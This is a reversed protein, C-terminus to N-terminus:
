KQKSAAKQLKNRFFAWHWFGRGPIADSTVSIVELGADQLATDIEAVTWNVSPEYVKLDADSTGGRLEAFQCLATGEPTLKESLGILYDLVLGKTLHQFVTISYVFDLYPPTLTRWDEALVPTFNYVNNSALFSQAKDLITHNVDIGYVHKVQPAIALTERGYGCGIIAATMSRDLTVFRAIHECDKESTNRPKKPDTTGYFKRYKEEGFDKLLAQNQNEFYGKNQMEKWYELNSRLTAVKLTDSSGPRNKKSNSTAPEEVLNGITVQGALRHQIKDWIDLGAFYDRGYQDFWGLIQKERWEEPLDFVTRDFFPYGYFWIRPSPKLGLGTEDISPAYRQNIEDISKNPERIRELCRYWSQKILLNRWNVFQFHLLGASYGELKFSRGSLGEPVRPTHIFESAYSCHRDDCFIIEKYNWTWVSNDFRYEDIDKWLQIWNLALRDGPQLKRITETLCANDLLNSSLMEDADIVIFHTGGIERGAQLMLNRDGPEDRLWENKRIIKEINCESRLSEVIQLSEDTSADDLYVIADTFMALARLCQSIIHKENRAPILGVIKHVKNKTVPELDPKEYEQPINCEGVGFFASVVQITPSLPASVNRELCPNERPLFSDWGPMEARPLLDTERSKQYCFGCWTRDHILSRLTIKSETPINVGIPLFHFRDGHYSWHDWTSFTQRYGIADIEVEVIGSLPGVVIQLGALYGQGILILEGGPECIQWVQQSKFVHHPEGMPYQTKTKLFRTSYKPFPFDIDRNGCQQLLSSFRNGAISAILESGHPTTHVSDKIITDLTFEESCLGKFLTSCINISPIGYHEAVTEYESLWPNAADFLHDARFLNLFIPICEVEKAVRIIAELSPGIEELPTLGDNLDGTLLEIFCITPQFSFFESVVKQLAALCGMAGYACVVQQHQHGTLKQLLRHLPTVYSDKQATVSAGLYGIRSPMSQLQRATRLPLGLRPIFETICEQSKLLQTQREFLGKTVPNSFIRGTINNFAKPQGISLLSSLQSRTDCLIATNYQNQITETSRILGSQSGEIRITKGTIGSPIRSYRLSDDTYHCSWNDRFAVAKYKVEGALANQYRSESSTERKHIEQLELVQGPKLGIVINRLVNNDHLASSFHEDPDIVIFHTGGIYRGVNLLRNYNETLDRYTGKKQIIHKIKCATANWTCIHVTDDTSADDLIVMEDIFPSLKQLTDAISSSENRVALLGVIKIPRQQWDFPKTVPNFQRHPTPPADVIGDILSIDAADKGEGRKQKMERLIGMSAFRIGHFYFHNKPNFLIDDISTVHHAACLNHSGILDPDGFSYEDPGTHLFDLDRCDRLGYASLIASGDVCFRDPDAAQRQLGIIFRTFLNWFVTLHRMKANNLFHLSNSNFFIGGLLKTEEHTDNIHVSHNDVRYIARIAEKMRRLDAGPKPEFLFTRVSGKGTPFCGKAKNRTGPWGQEPDGIWPENRYMQWVLLATGDGAINMAKSYVIEGHELLIQVADEDFEQQAAPFITVIVCNPSWRIYELAIADCADVSLGRKQFWEYDYIPALKDCRLVHMFKNYYICAATRHAGDIITSTADIPVLSTQESFGGQAISQLISIFDKVFTEFGFKEDTEYFGNFVSIHERYLEEGFTTDYTMQCIRAFALKAPIDFRKANLFKIANIYDRTFKCNDLFGNELLCPHLLRSIDELRVDNAYNSLEHAYEFEPYMEQVAKRAYDAIELLGLNQGAKAMLCLIQLDINGSTCLKSLLYLAETEQGTRILNEAKSVLQDRDHDQM